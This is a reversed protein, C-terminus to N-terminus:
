KQAPATKPERELTKARRSNVTIVRQQASTMTSTSSSSSSAPGDASGSGSPLVNVPTNQRVTVGLSRRSTSTRSTTGAGVRPSMGPLDQVQVQVQPTEVVTDESSGLSICSREEIDIHDDGHSEEVDVRMVDFERARARIDHNASATDATQQDQYRTGTGGALRVMERAAARASYFELLRHLDGESMNDAVDESCILQLIEEESLAM